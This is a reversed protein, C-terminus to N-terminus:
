EEFEAQLIRLVSDITEEELETRQLLEEPSIALVSKATDCGIKILEDIVWQEIEDSFERIDVDDFDEDTDRYVDIEFGTLKSALKINHGGKGIALSVEKSSFLSSPLAM